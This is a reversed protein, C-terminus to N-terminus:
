QDGGKEVKPKKLWGPPSEGQKESGILGLEQWILGWGKGDKRTALLGSPDAGDIESTMLALMIAGMGYGQCFYGMVWEESVGYREAIKVAVPHPEDMKGALCYASDAKSGEADAVDDRKDENDKANAAQDSRGVVKITEALISGDEQLWGRVLVADGLGILELGFGAPAIVTVSEGRNTLITLSGVAANIDVVDGKVGVRDSKALGPTALLLTFLFLLITGKLMQKM